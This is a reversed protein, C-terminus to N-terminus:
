ADSIRITVSTAPKTQRQPILPIWKPPAQYVYGQCGMCPSDRHEPRHKIVSKPVRDCEHLLPTVPKNKM